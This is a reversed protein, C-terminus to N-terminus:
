TFPHLFLSVSHPCTIHHADLATVRASAKGHWGNWGDGDLPDLTAQPDKGPMVQSFWADYDDFEGAWEHSGAPAKPSWSGLGDYLQTVHYGHDIGHGASANWGFHDKGFSATVYGASALARPMEFPYRDAVTGYGLM